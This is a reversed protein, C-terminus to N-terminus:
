GSSKVYGLKRELRELARIGKELEKELPQLRKRGLIIRQRAAKDQETILLNVIARSENTLVDGIGALDAFLDGDATSLKAFVEDMRKLKSATTLNELRDRLGGQRGYYTAIRHCHGRGNAILRNLMGREMRTFPRADIAKKSIAPQVFAEIAKSVAEYTDHVEDLASVVDKAPRTESALIEDLPGIKEAVQRLEKAARMSQDVVWQDDMLTGQAPQAASREVLKRARAVLRRFADDSESKGGTLDVYHLETFGVPIRAESDLLVPVLVGRKAALDAESRVFDKGVSRVTWVVIVCAADRLKEDIVSRFPTGYEIEKDWWVDLGRSALRDVFPEIRGRDERAYSVVVHGTLRKPKKRTRSSRKTGV